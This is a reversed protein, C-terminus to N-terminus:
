ETNRKVRFAVIEKILEEPLPDKLPFQIAGKSFKYGGSELKEKFREVGESGPYLGIHAKNLAFHVLYGNLCFTPMKWSIKESAEPATEKIIQRLRRLREQWEEPCQLIYEEIVDM